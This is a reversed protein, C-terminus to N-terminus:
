KLFQYLTGSKDIIKDVTLITNGGGTFGREM